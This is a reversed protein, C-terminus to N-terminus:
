HKCEVTQNVTSDTLESKVLLFVIFPYGSTRYGPVTLADFDFTGSQLFRKYLTYRAALKHNKYENMYESPNSVPLLCNYPQDPNESRVQIQITESNVVPLKKDFKLLFDAGTEPDKPVMLFVIKGNPADPYVNLFLPSVTSQFYVDTYRNNIAKLATQDLKKVAAAYAQMDKLLISLNEYNLAQGVHKPFSKEQTVATNQQKQCAAFCLLLVALLIFLPRM